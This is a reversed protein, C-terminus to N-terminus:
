ITRLKALADAERLTVEHATMGLQRGTEEASLPQMGELGYRLSILRRDEQSLEALLEQIRQRMQFYATDEVAQNQPEEEEPEPPQKARALLRANDLMAKVVATNEPSLHLGEAMEELTPNRGLEALLREDVSRYDEMASRLKQGVGRQRAQLLIARAMCQRIRRDSLAMYDGERFESITQWLGLSGEQILDMLLVGRGVHEQAIAIVRSLGLNTLMPAADEVGEAVQQALLTEDGAVPIGAVEELYLRLPDNAELDSPRLGKKVLQQEQRLRLAAEGSSVPPLGGTELLINREELAHLADKVVDEAELEALALFATASATSGPELADLWSDLPTQEFSFDLTNM